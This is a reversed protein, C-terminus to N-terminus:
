PFAFKMPPIFRFAPHPHHTPSSSPVWILLSQTAACPTRMLFTAEASTALGGWGTVQMLFDRAASGACAEAEDGPSWCGPPDCAAMWGWMLMTQLGAELVPAAGWSGVLETHGLLGVETECELMKCGHSHQAVTSLTKRVIYFCRCLICVITSYQNGELGAEFYCWCKIEHWLM